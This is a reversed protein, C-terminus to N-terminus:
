IHLYITTSYFVVLRCVYISVIQYDLTCKIALLMKIHDHRMLHKLYTIFICKGVSEKFVDNLRKLTVFDPCFRQIKTSNPWGLNAFFIDSKLKNCIQTIIDHLCVFLIYIVLITLKTQFTFYECRLFYFMDSTRLVRLSILM